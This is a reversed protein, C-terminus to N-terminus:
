ELTDIEITWVKFSRNNNWIISRCSASLPGSVTPIKRRPGFTRAMRSMLSLSSSPPVTCQSWIETKTVAARRLTLRCRGDMTIIRSTRCKWTSLQFPTASSRKTGYIRNRTKQSITLLYNSFKKSMTGLKFPTQCLIKLKQNKEHIVTGRALSHEM